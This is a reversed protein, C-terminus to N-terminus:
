VICLPVFLIVPFLSGYGPTASFTSYVINDWLRGSLLGMLKSHHPSVYLYVVLGYKGLWDM